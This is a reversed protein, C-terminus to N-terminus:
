RLKELCVRSYGPLIIETLQGTANSFIAVADRTKANEASLQSVQSERQERQAMAEHRVSAILEKTNM